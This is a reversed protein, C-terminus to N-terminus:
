GDTKVRQRWFNLLEGLGEEITHTQRWGLAALRSPDGYVTNVDGARYREPDVTVDVEVTSLSVLTDLLHRIKVARGSCINYVKGPEGKEALLEYATVVDRVDLFDRSSDLNGVRLENDGTLGAEIEAVQRAFSSAVFVDSQRPGFHNFPRCRVVKTGHRKWYQYGLLDQTVKSVAYPNTPLLETSEGIPMKDEAVDGYEESSGVNMLVTEPSTKRVAELINLTAFINVKLTPAPDKVSIAPVSQAALHYVVDPKLEGVAETVKAGDLLDFKLLRLRDAFGSLNFDDDMNHIGWVENERCLREALHSGAFGSIGTVLVKM